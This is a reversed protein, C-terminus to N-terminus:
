KRIIEIVPTPKHVPQLKSNQMSPETTSCEATNKPFNHNRGRGSIVSYRSSNKMNGLLEQLRAEARLYIRVEKLLQESVVKSMVVTDEELWAPDVLERGTPTMVTCPTFSMPPEVQRITPTSQSNKVRSLAFPEPSERFSFHGHENFELEKKM